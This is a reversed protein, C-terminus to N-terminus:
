PICIVQTLDIRYNEGLGSAQAIAEATTGYEVALSFVTDNDKVVYALHGQNCFAPNPVPVAINNGPFLDDADIGHRAMLAVSTSYANSISYLTDGAAVTHNRLIVSEPRPPAPVPTPSPPVPPPTPTITPVVPPPQEPLPQVQNMESELMIELLPDISIIVPTDNIIITETRFPQDAGIQPPDTTSSRSSILLITLFTAVALLVASVILVFVMSKSRQQPQEM